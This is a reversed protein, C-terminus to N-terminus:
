RIAPASGWDPQHEEGISLTVVHSGNPRMTRLGQAWGDADTYTARVFIIRSGDPSWAPNFSEQYRFRAGDGDAQDGRTLQRLHRGDADVVMVSQVFDNARLRASFVIRSGDPSWDADAAYIAWPTIRRLKSGDPAVTFLAGQEVPGDPGDVVRVENFVIRKGNPSFRALEQGLSGPPNTTVRRPPSSGDAPMIEIQQGQGRDTSFVLWRGDPSWSPNGSFGHSDTLLRVDTGDARMTFVDSIEHDDSPDPDTRHSSFAIRTGDPSWTPFWADSGPGHTLEVQQTLDSDATWVQFEGNDDSRMFVIRGNPGPFTGLTTVPMLGAVLLLFSALTFSRRAHRPV